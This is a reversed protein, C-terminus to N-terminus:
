DVEFEGIAFEEVELEEVALEEVPVAVEVMAVEEDVDAVAGVVVLPVLAVEVLADVDVTEVWVEAEEVLGVVVIV